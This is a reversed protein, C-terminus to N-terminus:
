MITPTSRLYCIAGQGNNGDSDDVVVRKFKGEIEVGQPMAANGIKVGGTGGFRSDTVSNTFTGLDGLVSGINNATDVPVLELLYTASGLIQIKIIEFKPYIHVYENELLPVRLGPEQLKVSSGAVNLVVGLFENTRSKM